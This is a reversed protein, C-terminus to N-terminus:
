VCDAYPFPVYLKPRNTHFPQCHLSSCFTPLFFFADVGALTHTHSLTRSLSHSSLFIYMYNPLISISFFHSCIKDADFETQFFQEHMCQAYSDILVPLLSSRVISVSITSDNFRQTQTIKTGGCVLVLLIEPSFCTFCQSLFFLIAITLLADFSYCCDRTNQKSSSSAAVVLREIAM